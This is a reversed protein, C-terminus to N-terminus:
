LLDDALTRRLRPPKRMPELAVFGLEALAAIGRADFAVREQVQRLRRQGVEGVDVRDHEVRRRHPRERAGDDVREDSAPDGYATVGVLRGDLDLHRADGGDVGLAQGFGDGLAQGREFGDIRTAGGRDLDHGRREAGSREGLDHACARGHEFRSLDRTANAIVHVVTVRGVAHDDDGILRRAARQQRVREAAVLQGDFNRMLRVREVGFRHAHHRRQELEGILVHRAIAQDIEQRRAIHRAADGLALQRAADGASPDRAGHTLECRRARVCGVVWARESRPERARVCSLSDDGRVHDIQNCRYARERRLRRHHAVRSREPAQEITQVQERARTADRVERRGSGLRAGGVREQTILCAQTAELIQEVRQRARRRLGPERRAAETALREHAQEEFLETCGRQRSATAVARDDAHARWAVQDGVRAREEDQGARFLARQRPAPALVWENGVIEGVDELAREVPLDERARALAVAARDQRDCPCACAGTVEDHAVRAGIGIPTREEGAREDLVRFGHATAHVAGGQVRHRAEAVCAGEFLEACAQEDFAAPIFARAFAERGAREVREARTEIAEVLDAEGADKPEGRDLAAAGVEKRAALGGTHEVAAEGVRRWDIRQGPRRRPRQGCGREAAVGLARMAEEELRHQAQTREFLETVIEVLARRARERM